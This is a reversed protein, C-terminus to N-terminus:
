MPARRMRKEQTLGRSMRELCGLKLFNSLNKGMNMFTFSLM